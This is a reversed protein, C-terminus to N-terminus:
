GKFQAQWFQTLAQRWAASADLNACHGAARLNVITWNPRNGIRKLAPRLGLNVAHDQGCIMILMPGPFSLANVTLDYQRVQNAIAVGVRPDFARAMEAILVRAPKFRTTAAAAITGLLRPGLVRRVAPLVPILGAPVNLSFCTGFIGVSSFREPVQGLLHLVLIGGLSNGIWHVKDAQAHNLITLMDAAMTPISFDEPKISLPAGSRGHGRLDPVIVRYGMAAFHAADAAFQNGNAALGHCLVVVPGSGIVGYSLRTGDAALCSEYNLDSLEVPANLVV